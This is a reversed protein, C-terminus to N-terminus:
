LENALSVLKFTGGHELISGFLRLSATDPPAGLVVRCDSWVRNPGELLPPGCTYGSAGLPQGGHRMLLRTISRSSVNQMQFWLLAPSLEYPAATYRTHPYYLWAFEARDLVLTALAATDASEVASLFRRVLADRTAAGGRLATPESLGARFRRLHEEVPLSSDVVGGSAARAESVSARAVVEGGSGGAGAGDCAPLGLVVLAGTLLLGPM